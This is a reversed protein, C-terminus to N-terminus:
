QHHSQVGQEKGYVKLLFELAKAYHQTKNPQIAVRQVVYISVEGDEKAFDSDEQETEIQEEDEVKYDAM